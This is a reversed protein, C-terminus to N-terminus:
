IAVDIDPFGMTWCIQTKALRSGRLWDRSRLDVDPRLLSNGREIDLELLAKWGAGHLSEGNARDIGLILWSRHPPDHHTQTAQLKQLYHRSLAKWSTWVLSTLALVKPESWRDM